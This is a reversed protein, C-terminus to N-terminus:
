LLYNLASVRPSGSAQLDPHPPLSRTHRADSQLCSAPVRPRRTIRPVGRPTSGQLLRRAKLFPCLYQKKPPTGHWEVSSEAPPM